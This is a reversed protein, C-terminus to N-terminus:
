AVCFDGLSCFGASCGGYSGLFDKVGYGSFGAEFAGFLLMGDEWGVVSGSGLSLDVFSFSFLSLELFVLSLDVFLVLSPSSDM